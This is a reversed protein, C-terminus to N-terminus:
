NVRASRRGRFWERWIDALLAHACKVYRDKENMAGLGEAAASVTVAHKALSYVVPPKERGLLVHRRANPGRGRLGRRLGHADDSGGAM